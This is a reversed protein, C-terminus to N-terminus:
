LLQEAIGAKTRSARWRWILFAAVIVGAPISIILALNEEDESEEEVDAMHDKFDFVVVEEGPVKTAIAFALQGLESETNNSCDPILTEYVPLTDNYFYGLAGAATYSYDLFFIEYNINEAINKISSM